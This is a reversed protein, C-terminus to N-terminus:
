RKTTQKVRAASNLLGGVLKDVLQIQDLYEQLEKPNIYERDFCLYTDSKVEGLSGMAVRYFQSSDRLYFRAFGEAINAPIHRGNEKLHRTLSYKEEKPLKNALEFLMKALKRSEVWAQLDELRTIKQYTM